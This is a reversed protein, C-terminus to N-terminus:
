RLERKNVLVKVLLEDYKGTATQIKRRVDENTVHDKHLTNSLMRFCSMEFAQTRKELEAALTWSDCAYLIISIIISIFLSCM